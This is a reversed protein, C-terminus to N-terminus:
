VRERCSARGIELGSILAGGSTGLSVPVSGIWFSMAGFLGGVFIALGVFMLDSVVSPKDVHGIHPTARKVKAPSGILTLRDGKKFVTDGDITFESGSRAGDRIVVGHMFKKNRLASLRKGIFPSKAVIVGIRSLPYSLLENDSTEPGVNEEIQLLAESRGCIVVIDGAAIPDGYDPASIEGNHKLRDIYVEHGKTRLYRETDSVSRPQDFFRSEIRYVRYSVARMANIVAPDYSKGATDLQKELEATQQKVKDLGGLLRPGFNGLIIVTGLTGFIYTVAYCVPVISLQAKLEDDPLGLRGLAETGLGILSSCTQSGSFMGITEGKNYGLLHATLLTVSFCLASMVVAFLAQKGGSGRLSRFFDPGVSYGISFLFLMFFFMKIPGAVHIDLQGIAVAVLLVATVSGLSFSGIHLRGLFFGIGITLFIALTPYERLISIFSDIM